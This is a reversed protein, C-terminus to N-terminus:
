HLHLHWETRKTGRRLKGSPKASCAPSVTRVAHAEVFRTLEATPNQRKSDRRAYRSNPHLRPDCLERSM